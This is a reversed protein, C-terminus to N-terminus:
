FFIEANLPVHFIVGGMGTILGVIQQATAPDLVQTHVLGFFINDGTLEQLSFGADHTIL